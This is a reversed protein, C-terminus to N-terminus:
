KSCKTLVTNKKTPIVESGRALLFFLLMIAKVNRLNSFPNLFSFLGKYYLAKTPAISPFILDKNVGMLTEDIDTALPVLEHGTLKSTEKPVEGIGVSKHSEM